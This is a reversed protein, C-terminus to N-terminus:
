LPYSNSFFSFRGANNRRRRPPTISCSFLESLNLMQFLQTQMDM